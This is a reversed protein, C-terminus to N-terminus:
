GNKCFFNICEQITRLNYDVVYQDAFEANSWHRLLRRYEPKWGLLKKSAYEEFADFLEYEDEYVQDLNVM